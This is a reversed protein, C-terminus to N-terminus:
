YILYFPSSKEGRAKVQELRIEFVSGSKHREGIMTNFFDM